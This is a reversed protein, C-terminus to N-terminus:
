QEDWAERWALGKGPEYYQVSGSCWSTYKCKYNKGNHTYTQGAEHAGGPVYPPHEGGGSSPTVIFTQQALGTKGNQEDRVLLRVEHETPERVTVAVGNVTMQNYPKNMGIVTWSYLLPGNHGVSQSASFTFPRGSQM